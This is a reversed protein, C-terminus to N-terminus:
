LMILILPTPSSICTSSGPRSKSTSSGLNITIHPLSLLELSLFFNSPSFPLVLSLFTACPLSLCCLSLFSNLSSLVACLVSHVTTNNQFSLELSMVQDEYALYYALGNSEDLMICATDTCIDVRECAGWLTRTTRGDFARMRGGRLKPDLVSRVAMAWHVLEGTAMMTLTSKIASQTGNYLVRAQKSLGM